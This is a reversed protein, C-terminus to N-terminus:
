TPSLGGMCETLDGVWVAPMAGVLTLRHIFQLALKLTLSSANM